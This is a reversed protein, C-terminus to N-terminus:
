PAVGSAGERATACLAVLLSTSRTTIALRWLGGYVDADLFTLVGADLPSRAVLKAALRVTEADIPLRCVITAVSKATARDIAAETGLLSTVHSTAISVAKDLEDGQEIMAAVARVTEATAPAKGLRKLIRKRVKQLRKDQRVTLM